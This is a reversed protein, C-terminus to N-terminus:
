PGTLEPEVGEILYVVILPTALFTCNLWVPPEFGLRLGVVALVQDTPKTVVGFTM